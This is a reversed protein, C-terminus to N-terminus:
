EGPGPGFHITWEDKLNKIENCIVFLLQHTSVDITGTGSEKVDQLIALLDEIKHFDSKLQQNM